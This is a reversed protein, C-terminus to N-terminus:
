DSKTTKNNIDGIIAKEIIAWNKRAEKTIDFDGSSLHWLIASPQVLGFFILAISKPDLEKRIAGSKQGGSVIEEIKGLYGNIITYMQQRRGQHDSYVDESFVIRPIGQNERILKIHKMLLKYLQKLPDNTENQVSRINGMLRNQILDLVANLVADKNKYHRYLASPVVGVHRAIKAISLGKMGNAAVLKLAAEAIQEQRINTDTKEARM